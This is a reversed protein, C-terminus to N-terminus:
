DRMWADELLKLVQLKYPLTGTVRDAEDTRCGAKFFLSFYQHPDIPQLYSVSPCSVQQLISACALNCLIWSWGNGFATAGAGCPETRDPVLVTPPPVVAHSSRHKTHTESQHTREPPPARRRWWMYWLVVNRLALADEIEVKDQIPSFVATKTAPQSNLAYDM